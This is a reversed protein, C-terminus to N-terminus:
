GRIQWATWTCVHKALDTWVGQWTEWQSRKQSLFVPAGSTEAEVRRRKTTTGTCKAKACKTGKPNHQNRTPQRLHERGERVDWVGRPGIGGPSGRRTGDRALTRWVIPYRESCRGSRLSHHSNPASIGSGKDSENNLDIKWHQHIHLQVGINAICTIQWPTLKIKLPLVVAM